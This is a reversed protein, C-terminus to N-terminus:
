PLNNSGKDGHLQVFRCYGWMLCCWGAAAAAAVDGLRLDGSSDGLTVWWGATLWLGPASPSFVDSSHTHTHTCPPNPHTCNIYCDLLYLLLNSFSSSQYISMVFCIIHIVSIWWQKVMNLWFHMLWNKYYCQIFHLTSIQVSSDAFIYRQQACKTITFNIQKSHSDDAGNRVIRYDYLTKQLAENILDVVTMVSTHTQM